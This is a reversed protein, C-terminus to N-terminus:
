PGFGGSCRWRWADAIMRELTSLRPEWGLEARARSGDCVLRSPDGPRRPADRVPVRRGLVREAAEIVERVSHGRGVGLNLRIGRAGGMLRELALLHAEILDWVHVYDRVCTGDPTDYDRGFISLAERAGAAADLVLPILHTEPQHREGIEAEPDAGAVNFYRLAATRLGHAAEFDDLMREVALKSAGYPNIPRQPQDEDILEVDPEGYTAATSSFVIARVGTEVMAELLNLSGGVNNRWYLGPSRVSEGVNSLAAFHMVADPRAQALAARTADLDNLDAEILPGFRVAERWGTRLDDLAVPEHGAARLAKCAHAGIYGAGGTVLIRAM